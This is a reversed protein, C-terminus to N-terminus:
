TMSVSVRWWTVPKLTDPMLWTNTQYYSQKLFSSMFKRCRTTIESTVRFCGRRHECDRRECDVGWGSRRARDPQADIARQSSVTRCLRAVASGCLAALGPTM